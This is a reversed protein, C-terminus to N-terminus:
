PLELGLTRSATTDWAYSLPAIGHNFYEQDHKLVANLKV